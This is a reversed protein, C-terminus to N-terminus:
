TKRKFNSGNWGWHPTGQYAVYIREKSIELEEKVIDTISGTLREYAEGDAYGFFKVEIFAMPDTENEKFFMSVNDRFAVMLWKSKGPIIEIAESFREKIAEEKAKSIVINTTLNIFPM